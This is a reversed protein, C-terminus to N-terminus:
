HVHDTRPEPAPPAHANAVWYITLFALLVATLAFLLRALPDPETRARLERAARRVADDQAERALTRAGLRVHAYDGREFAEVLAGLVPDPPFERAFAPPM